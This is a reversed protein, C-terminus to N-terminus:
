HNSTPKNEIPVCSKIGTRVLCANLIADEERKKLYAQYDDEAAAALLASIKSIAGGIKGIYGPIWSSPGGYKDGTERIKDPTANPDADPHELARGAAILEATTTSPSNAWTTLQTLLDNSMDWMIDSVVWDFRGEGEPDILRGVATGFQPVGHVLQALHRVDTQTMHGEGAQPPRGAQYDSLLQSAHQQAIPEAWATFHQLHDLLQRDIPDRGDPDVLRLPNNLAYIYRNLTQPNEAHPAGADVSMFRGLASSNYRAEFFDLSSEGDRQKSTFHLPSADSCSGTTNMGDGFPLSTITECISGNVGSRARETALWDGHDFYTTSNTYTALHRGAAYVEARNMGGSSM